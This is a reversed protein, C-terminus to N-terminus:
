SLQYTLTGSTYLGSLVGSTFVDSGSPGAYFTIAGGTTLILLGFAAPSGVRVQIVFALDRAPRFRAPIATEISYTGNATPTANFQPFNLVVTNGTRTIRFTQSATFAGGPIAWRTAHTTEEYYTLATATGGTTPLVVGSTPYVPWGNFYFGSTAPPTYSTAALNIVMQNAAATTLSSGTNFVLCNAHNITSSGGGLITSRQGSANITNQIGGTITSFVAGSVITNTDGGCIGCGIAGAQNLNGGSVTSVTATASNSAGGAVVSSAGSAVNTTGGGVVANSNSATNFSGGVVVSTLGSATGGIGSGIFSGSGSATNAEGGCLVSSTGSAVQTNNGRFRQFDNAYNGRANGTSSAVLAGSGNPAIVLTTNTAPSLINTAVVTNVYLTGSNPTTAGDSIELESVGVRRLMLDPPASGSGWQIRGTNDFEWRNQTDGTGRIRMMSTFAPQAANNLTDLGADITWGEINLFLGTANINTVNLTTAGLTTASVSLAGTINNLADILVGSGTIARGSTFSFRPIANVTVGAGSNYVYDGSWVLSGAGDSVLINNAAPSSLPLAATWATAGGSLTATLSQTRINSVTLPVFQGTGPDIMQLSGLIRNPYITYDDVGGSSTWVIGGGADVSWRKPEGTRGCSILDSGDTLNRQIQLKNMIATIRDPDGAANTLSLTNAATRALRVDAGLGVFGVNTLNKSNMTIDTGSTTISPTSVSALGSLNGADDMLAPGNKALKGTTGDFRALANATSSAPGVILNALNAGNYTGAGSLNGLDDMVIPGNKLLKGTAGDFRALANATSSAPGDAFNAVTRGNITPVGSLAGADTLQAPSNKLLKGTTGDFRALANSASSAPGVVDGVGGGGGGPATWSFGSPSSTDVRLIQGNIGVPIAAPQGDAITLLDGDNELVRAADPVNSITSAKRNNSYM